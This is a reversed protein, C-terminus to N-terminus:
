GKCATAKILTRSVAGALECDDAEMVYDGISIWKNYTDGLTVSKRRKAGHHYTYGNDM